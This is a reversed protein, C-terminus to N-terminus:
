SKDNNCAMTAATCSAPNCDPAAMGTCTSGFLTATSNNLCQNCMKMGGMDSTSVVSGDQNAFSMGDAAIICEGSKADINGLCFLQACVLAKDYLGTFSTNTVTTKAKSDCAKSCTDYEAQTTASTACANLCAVYNFCGIKNNGQPMDGSAHAMDGTTGSDPVTTTSDGGCGVFAVGALLASTALAFITKRM